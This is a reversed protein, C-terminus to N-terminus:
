HMTAAAATDPILRPIQWTSTWTLEINYPVSNGPARVNQGGSSPLRELEAANIASRCCVTSRCAQPNSNHSFQSLSHLGRPVSHRSNMLM